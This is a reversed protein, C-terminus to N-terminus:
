GYKELVGEVMEPTLHGYYDDDLLIVPALFCTGLCAVTEFTFRLDPTTQGEEVGLQQKFAETIRPGGKVHCATGRCCKIMHRGRPELHFQEYFTAVGFMRSAPIGTAASAELVIPRPLYGYAAQIKQLLPILCDDSRELSALIGQLPAPDLTTSNSM